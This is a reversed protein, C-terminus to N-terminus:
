KVEEFAALKHWNRKKKRKEKAAEEAGGREAGAGVEAAGVQRRRTEAQKLTGESRLVPDQCAGGGGRTCNHWNRLRQKLSTKHM